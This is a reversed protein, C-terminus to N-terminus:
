WLGISLTSNLYRQALDCAVGLRWQWILQFLRLDAGLTGHLRGGVGHNRSPEFYSGLRGRMRFPWFESDLGM